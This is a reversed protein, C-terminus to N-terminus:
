PEEPPQQGDILITAHVSRAHTNAAADATEKTAYVYGICGGVGATPYINAYGEYLDDCIHTLKYPVTM